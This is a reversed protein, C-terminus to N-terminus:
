GVMVIHAIDGDAQGSVHILEVVASGPQLLPANALNSTHVSVFVGTRQMQVLQDRLTSSSNYEVVQPICTNKLICNM